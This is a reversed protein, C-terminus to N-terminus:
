KKEVTGKDQSTYPRTFYTEANLAIAIEMHYAFSMDNDFTVNSFRYGM